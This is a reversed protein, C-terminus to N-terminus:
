TKGEMRRLIDKEEGEIEIVKNRSKEGSVIRVRSKSVGLREALFLILRRNAAGEVPPSQVKVKYRGDETIGAVEDRSANPVLRIGMKM